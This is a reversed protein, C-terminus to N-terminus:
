SDFLFSALLFTAREEKPIAAIRKAQAEPVVQSEKQL